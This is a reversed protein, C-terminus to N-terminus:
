IWQESPLCHIEMVRWAARPNLEAQDRCLAWVHTVRLIKDPDGEVVKGASDRVCEIHQATFSIVLVPGQDVVKAQLVEPYSLDLLRSESRCGHQKLTKSQQELRKFQGEYCWSELVRNDGRFIAELVNPVVFQRCHTAFGSLTFSPELRAIENVVKHFDSDTFLSGFLSSFRESVFRGGRAIPNESEQYQSRMDFLKQMYPNSDKFNTWAQAWKSDRHLVVGQEHPNAEPPPAAGSSSSDTAIGSVEQRTMLVTPSRYVKLSLDGEIERSVAAAGTRARRVLDSDALMEASKSLQGAADKVGKAAKQLYEQQAVTNLSDRVKDATNKLRADQELNQYYKRVKQLEESQELKSTEDRFRKLSDKMAKDKQMEDRVRDILGAVFGKGGASLQRSPAALRWPLHSAATLRLLQSTMR